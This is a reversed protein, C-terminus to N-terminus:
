LCGRLVGVLVMLAICGVVIMARAEIMVIDAWEHALHEHEADEDQLEEPHIPVYKM